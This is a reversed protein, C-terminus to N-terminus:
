GTHRVIKREESWTRVSLEISLSQVLDARPEIERSMGPRVHVFAMVKHRLPVAHLQERLPSPEPVSGLLKEDLSRRSVDHGGAKVLSNLGSRVLKM